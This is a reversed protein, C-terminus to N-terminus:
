GCGYWHRWILYQAMQCNLRYCHCMKILHHEDEFILDFSWLELFVQDGLLFDTFHDCYHEDFKEKLLFSM